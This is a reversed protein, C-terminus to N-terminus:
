CTKSNIFCEVCDIMSDKENTDAVLSIVLKVIAIIFFVLIGTVLKKIFLNRYKKMEDEKGSAVAKTLDISGGVIIIIPVAIQLIRIAMTSLDPIRKPLNNIGGCSVKAYALTIDPTIAFVFMAIGIFILIKKYNINKM